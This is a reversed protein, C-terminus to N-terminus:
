ITFVAVLLQCIFLGIWQYVRLAENVFRWVGCLLADFLSFDGGSLPKECFFFVSKETAGGGVWFCVGVARMLTYYYGGRKRFFAQCLSKSILCLKINMGLREFDGM